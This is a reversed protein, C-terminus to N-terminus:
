TSTLDRVRIPTLGHCPPNEETKGATFLVAPTQGTLKKYSPEVVGEYISETIKM